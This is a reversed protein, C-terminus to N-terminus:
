KRRKKGDDIKDLQDNLEKSGIGVLRELIPYWVPKLLSVLIGIAFGALAAWLITM